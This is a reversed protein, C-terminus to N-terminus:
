CENICYTGKGEIRPTATETIHHLLNIKEKQRQLSRLLLEFESLSGDNYCNLGNLCGLMTGFEAMENNYAMEWAELRRNRLSESRYFAEMLELNNKMEDSALSSLEALNKRQELEEEAMKLDEQVRALTEKLSLVRNRTAKYTNMDTNATDQTQMVRTLLERLDSEGVEFDPHQQIEKCSKLMKNLKCDELVHGLRQQLTSLPTHKRSHYIDLVEKQLKRFRKRQTGDMVARASKLHMRFMGTDKSNFADNLRQGWFLDLDYRVCCIPCYFEGDIGCEKVVGGFRGKKICKLHFIHNCSCLLYLWTKRPFIPSQCIFCMCGKCFPEKTTTHFSASHSAQGSTTEREDCARKEQQDFWEIKKEDLTPTTVNLDLCNIIHERGTEVRHDAFELTSSSAGPGHIVMPCPENLPSIEANGDNNQDYKFHYDVRISEIAKRVHKRIVLSVRHEESLCWFRKNKCRWKTCLKILEKRGLALPVDENRLLFVLAKLINEPCKKVMEKTLSKLLFGRIEEIRINANGCSAKQLFGADGM